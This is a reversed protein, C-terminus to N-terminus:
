PNGNSESRLRIKKTSSTATYGVALHLDFGTSSAESTSIYTNRSYCVFEREFYNKNGNVEEYFAIWGAAFRDKAGNRGKTISANSPIRTIIVTVQLREYNNAKGEEEIKEKIDSETSDIKSQITSVANQIASSLTNTAGTIATATATTSATIATTITTTAAVIGAGIAATNAAIAALVQNKAGDTNSNIATKAAEVKNDTEQFRTGLLTALEQFSNRTRTESSDIYSKLELESQGVKALTWDNIENRIRNNSESTHLKLQSIIEAKISDSFNCNSGEGNGDGCGLLECFNPLEPPEEPPEEEELDGCRYLIAEQTVEFGVGGLAIGGAPSIIDYKLSGDSRRRLTYFVDFQFNTMPFKNSIPNQREQDNWGTMSLVWLRQGDYGDCDRQLPLAPVEDPIPDPTIDDNPPPEQRCECNEFWFRYLANARVKSYLRQADFLDQPEINQPPSPQSQCFDQLNVTVNLNGFTALLAAKAVENLGVSIDITQSLPKGDIPKSGFQCVM